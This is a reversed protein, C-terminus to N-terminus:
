PRLSGAAPLTLIALLCATALLAYAFSAGAAARRDFTRAANVADDISGGLRDVSGALAARVDAVQDRPADIALWHYGAAAPFWTMFSADAMLLAGDFLADELVAVMRFRVTRGAITVSLDDGLRRQLSSLTRASTVVPV